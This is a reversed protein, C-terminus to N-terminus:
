SLKPCPKYVQPFLSQKSWVTTREKSYKRCPKNIMLRANVHITSHTPGHPYKLIARFSFRTYKGIMISCPHLQPPPPPTRPYGHNKGGRGGHLGKRRLLNFVANLDFHCDTLFLLM